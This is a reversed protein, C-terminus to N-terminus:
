AETRAPVRGAEMRMRHREPVPRRFGWCRQPLLFASRWRHVLRPNERPRLRWLGACTAHLNANTAWWLLPTAPKGGPFKKPTSKATTPFPVSAPKPREDSVARLLTERAAAEDLGVLDAYLVTKLIGDPACTGVRIPIQKRQGGTPDLVLSSAWEPQTFLPMCISRRCFRSRPNAGAAAKHMELVFNSGPRFDWHQFFTTYGASELTAAIWEAWARDASNFSVFFDRRDTGPSTM